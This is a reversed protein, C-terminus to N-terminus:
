PSGFQIRELFRVWRVGFLRWMLRDWWPLPEPKAPVWEGKENQQLLDDM